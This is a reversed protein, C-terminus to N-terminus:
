IIKLEKKINIWRIINDKKVGESLCVLISEDCHFENELYKIILLQTGKSLEKKKVKEAFRSMFESPYNWILYALSGYFNGEADTFPLNSIYLYDFVMSYIMEIELLPLRYIAQETGWGFDLGLM